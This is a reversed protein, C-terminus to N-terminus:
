LSTRGRTTATVTNTQFNWSDIFVPKRSRDEDLFEYTYSATISFGKFPKLTGFFRARMNTKRINGADANLRKLPNNVSSQAADETNNVAGYRGDPARFVMGPTTASAYTFLESVATTNDSSDYNAAPDMNSVYGNAQVGLSLWPKLDASVNLRGTFKEFGTNEM